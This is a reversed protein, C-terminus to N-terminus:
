DSCGNAIARFFMDQDHSSSFLAANTAIKEIQKRTIRDTQQMALDFAYFDTTAVTFAVKWSNNGLFISLFTGAALVPNLMRSFERKTAIDEMARQGNSDLKLDYISPCEM